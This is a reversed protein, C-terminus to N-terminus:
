HSPDGAAKASVAAAPADEVAAVDAKMIRGSIGTGAVTTVDVGMAEATRLAMPTAKPQAAAYALVDREVIRSNPGTGQVLAM